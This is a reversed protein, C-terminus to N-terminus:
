INVTFMEDDGVDSEGTVGHWTEDAHHIEVATGAAMMEAQGPAVEMEFEPEGAAAFLMKEGGAVQTGPTSYESDFSISIPLSPAAVLEGLGVEDKVALGKDRQWARVATTTGTEWEGNEAVDFDLANLMKQLQKVDEGKTGPTLDRWFPIAGEAIFVETDGVTYLSDGQRFEGIGEISTIVGSLFNQALAINPRTVTTTLTMLRGLEQETVEVYSEEAVVQDVPEQPRLTVRGAWFAAAAVIIMVVVGSIVRGYRRVM